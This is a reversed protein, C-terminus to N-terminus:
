HHLEVVRCAASANLHHAGGLVLAVQAVDKREGETRLKVGLVAVDLNNVGRQVSAAYPENGLSEGAQAELVYDMHRLLVQAVAVERGHNGRIRLLSGGELHCYLLGLLGM